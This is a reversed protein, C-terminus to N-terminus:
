RMSVAFKHAIEMVKPALSNLSENILGNFYHEAEEDTLDLRFKEETKILVKSLDSRKSVDNIGADGMLSLLNLILNASKRLWNYAQFCYSKFKQYYESDEGGMCDVMARTLRFPPPLPKPDQGFIFGFDIHFFQGYKTMMLNDLHRDGIGLIFTIVCYGASSRLFTEFTIPNVGFPGSDDANYQRLYNILTSHNTLIASIPMSNSVFEMIGDNKSVALIGYTLLKLDLNVRKLLMDMLSIMQMVLQDQRLDDGSKFMIKHKEGSSGNTNNTNNANTNGIGNSNGNGIGNSNGNSNGNGIGSDNGNVTSSNGSGNGNGNGNSNGNDQGYFEIVCPYVASKFMSASDPNLGNIYKWPQLPVPICSVGLTPIRSLGKENLLKKLAAEKENKRRGQERAELQTQLIKAIYDDQAVLQQHFFDQNQEQQLQQNFADFIQQFMKGSVEDEIEVKLYWYLFNGVIKSKCGRSILFKALPSLSLTKSGNSDISVSTSSSSPSLSIDNTPEYRLAQVLQLLYTLLEDDSASQLVEVAHERVIAHQYGKERGLLKLADAVDIPANEKWKTLLLPLEAVEQDNTWDIAMLFKTLARKNETLSYRFRYLLDMDEFTMVYNLTTQLIRDINEKEKLNPKINPDFNNRLANNTVKRHMDEYLNDNDMDWDAIVILSSANFPKNPNISFEIANNNNDIDSSYIGFAISSIDTPPIHSTIGSYYNRDEHLIPYAYTPLEIILYCFTNLDIEQLNPIYSQLLIPEPLPQDKAIPSSLSSHLQNHLELVKQIHLLTLKDLWALPLPRTLTSTNNNSANNMAVTSAITRNILNKYNDFYKEIQFINDQKSYYLDYLEGPTQNMDLIISDDPECGFYFVLKQKGQKLLGNKDYLHFTTGGIIQNTSSKATFTIITNSSLDRLKFPFTMIYDWLLYYLNSDIISFNTSIIAEHLIIQNSIVTAIISIENSQCLDNPLELRKIGLQFDSIISHSHFWKYEKFAKFSPNNISNNAQQQTINETM